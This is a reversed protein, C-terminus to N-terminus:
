THASGGRVTWNLGGVRGRAELVRVQYGLKGLEYATVLGSLGAGLVIVKTAPPRGWLAPRPGAAPAMMGWVNMAGMVLSSGGVMGFRQLVQRRTMTALNMHRNDVMM